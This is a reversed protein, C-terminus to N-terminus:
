RSRFIRAAYEDLIERERDYVTGICIADDNKRDRLVRTARLIPLRSDLVALVNNSGVRYACPEVINNLRWRNGLVRGQRHTFARLCISDVPRWGAV